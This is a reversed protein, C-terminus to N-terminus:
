NDTVFITPPCGLCSYIMTDAWDLKNCRPCVETRIDMLESATIAENKGFPIVSIRSVSLLKELKQPDKHAKLLQRRYEMYTVSSMCIDGNYDNLWSIFASNRLACTDLMLKVTGRGM